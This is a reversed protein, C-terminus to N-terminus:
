VSAQPGYLLAGVETRVKTHLLFQMPGLKKEAEVLGDFNERVKKKRESAAINEDTLLSLLLLEVLTAKGKALVPFQVEEAVMKFLQRTRAVEACAQRM